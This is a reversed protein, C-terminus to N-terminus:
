LQLRASGRNLRTEAGFMSGVSALNMLCRALSRRLGVLRTYHKRCLLHRPERCEDVRYMRRDFLPKAPWTRELSGGPVDGWLASVTEDLTAFLLPFVAPLTRHV